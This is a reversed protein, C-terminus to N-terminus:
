SFRDRPLKLRFFHDPHAHIIYITRLRKGSGAIWDALEAAQTESLLTDVLLADREGYILTAANAV